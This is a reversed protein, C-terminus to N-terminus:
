RDGANSHACGHRVFTGRPIRLKDIGLELLAKSIEVFDEIRLIEGCDKKKKKEEPMCYRCKLKCLDTISIRAYHIKRGYTDIM